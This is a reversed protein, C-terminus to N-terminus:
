PSGTSDPNVEMADFADGDHFNYAFIRDAELRANRSCLTWRKGTKPNVKGFLKGITTVKSFPIEKQYHLALHANEELFDKTVSHHYSRQLPNEPIFESLQKNRYTNYM